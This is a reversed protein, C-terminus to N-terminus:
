PYKYPRYFHSLDEYSSRARGPIESGMMDDLYVVLHYGKETHIYRIGDTFRSCALAGIRHGFAIRFDVFYKGQWALCLKPYDFPDVHLQRFARSLDVKFMEAGPGLERLRCTFDDITPFQLRFLTGFYENIPTFRNVSNEVPWSLDM